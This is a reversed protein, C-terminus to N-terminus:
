RSVSSAKDKTIPRITVTGFPRIHAIRYLVDRRRIPEVERVERFSPIFSFLTIIRLVGSIFFVQVYLSNKIWFWKEFNLFLPFKSATYSGALSGSLILVGNITSQYAVCRARKQPSVADFLFNTVSLNYGAWFFGAVIQVFVLYGATGSVTWLFPAICIGAGCVDLIKKNGYRDSISGWYPFAIIQSLVAAGLVITFEGLGFQLERLMYIAFYPAAFWVGFNMFAVFFTFRGFNTRTIQGIFDVFSFKDEVSIGFPPDEHRSLWVASIARAFSASLFILTFGWLPQHFRQFLDLVIGAIIVAALTVATCIRNRSAFYSGRIESPVLDGILSNWVPTILGSAIQHFAVFLILWLLAKSRTQVFYPLFAIGFWIIAQYFAIQSLLYRRSEVREMIWVGALQFGAGLFIPLTGLIGIELVSGQLIVAFAGLYTEGLGLMMAHWLGDQTSAKLSSFSTSDNKLSLRFRKWISFALNTM